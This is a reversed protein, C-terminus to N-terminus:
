ARHAVHIAGKDHHVALMRRAVDREIEFSQEILEDGSENNICIDITASPTEGPEDNLTVRLFGGLGDRDNAFHYVYDAYEASSSYRDYQLLPKM